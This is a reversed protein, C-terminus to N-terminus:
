GGGDEARRLLRVRQLVAGAMVAGLGGIAMDGITDDYEVFIESSIFAHGFWEVMEWLASVALGLAATLVVATAPASRAGTSRAEAPHPVIGLEALLLYLMVAIVATCTLHVVVDWWAVSTYLDLVNSWGAVLLVASYVLDFGARVGLLRPLLLGPLVFALVGADTPGFFVAAVVVGIGALVRLADASFEAPGRPPRLFRGVMRRWASLTETGTM